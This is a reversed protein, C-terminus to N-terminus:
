ARALSPSKRINVYSRCLKSSPLTWGTARSLGGSPLQYSTCEDRQLIRVEREYEWEKYKSSLIEEAAQEPKHRSPVVCPRIRWAIRRGSVNHARDPLEVEIALGSFGSAYHAWLLHSDFTKSLSCIVLDRKHSIIEDVEKSHDQEDTTRYSYGFQGEMPDNLKRWDSCHLRNNLIIDLAFHLESASRFKYALM